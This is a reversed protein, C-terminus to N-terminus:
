NATETVIYSRIATGSHITDCSLANVRYKGSNGAMTTWFPAASTSTATYSLDLSRWPEIGAMTASAQLQIGDAADTAGGREQRVTITCKVTTSPNAEDPNSTDLFFVQVSVRRFTPQTRPIPCLPTLSQGPAPTMYGSVARTGTLTNYSGPRCESGSYVTTVSTVAASSAPALLLAGLVAPAALSLHRSSEIRFLQM